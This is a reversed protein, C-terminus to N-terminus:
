SIVGRLWLSMFRNFGSQGSPYQMNNYNQKSETDLAQWAAVGAAFNARRAQEAPGPNQVPWYPKMKVIIRGKKAPRTQYYGSYPNSDGFQSWGFRLWGFLNPLGFKQISEVSILAEIPEVVAM